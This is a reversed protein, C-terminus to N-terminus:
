QVAKQMRNPDEDLIIEDITMDRKEKAEIKSLWKIKESRLGKGGTLTFGIIDKMKLGEKAHNAAENVRWKNGTRLKPQISRVSQDESDALM